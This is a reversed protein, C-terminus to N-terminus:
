RLGLLISWTEHKGRYDGPQEMQRDLGDAAMKALERITHRGGIAM